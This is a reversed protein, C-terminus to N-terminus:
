RILFIKSIEKKVGEVFCTADFNKARAICAAKFKGPNKSVKEVAAALAGANAPVLFGTKGNLVTEKFGGENVAVVAKGSAMAEVPTLGFDEDVATAIFGKCSSYLRLLEPESVSGLIEVNAPKSKLLPALMKEAHDGKAYGGVVVLRENPLMRFTEFQLGVRKEPYLRNVSLWFDGYKSFKFSETGVPPYIVASDRSYYKKVRAQVNKSNSVILQVNNKVSWQDLISHISAWIWFLFKHALTPQRATFQNRLDYFARVPTNCYYLNPKHRIAAYHSWNGEFIFFDYKKRFDCLAFLLSAHIQKLPPMKMTEGIPIINVDSYGMKKISDHDVDTTIVDAHLARALTLVLKEGGGIAGFYDHFIAIRKPFTKAKQKM